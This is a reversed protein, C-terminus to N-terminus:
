DLHVCTSGFVWMLLLLLLLLLQLYHLLQHTMTGIIHRYVTSAKVIRATLEFIMKCKMPSFLCPTNGERVSRGRDREIVM